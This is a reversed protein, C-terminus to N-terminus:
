KQSPEGHESQENDELTLHFSWYARLSIVDEEHEQYSRNPSPLLRKEKDPWFGEQPECRSANRRNQIRLDFAWEWLDFASASVMM